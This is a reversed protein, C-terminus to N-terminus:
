PTAKDPTPQVVTVPVGEIGAYTVLLVAPEDGDNVGRHVAGVMEALAEGAHVTTSKGTDRDQVTVSGSLVFAANPVTHRHWALSTHPPITIKLMSLEVKGCPYPDYVRGNWARDTQLLKESEVTSAAQAPGAAMAVFLPASLAMNWFTM